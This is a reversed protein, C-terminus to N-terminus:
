VDKLKQLGEVIQKPSIKKKVFEDIFFEKWKSDNEGAYYSAYDRSISIVKRSFEVFDYYNWYFLEDGYIKGEKSVQSRNSIMVTYIKCDQIIEKVNEIIWKRHTTAQRIDDIAIEGNDSEYKKDEFVIVINDKSIWYPDPAASDSPNDCKFGLLKGIHLNLNELDTSSIYDEISKLYNNYTKSHSIKKWSLYQQLYEINWVLNENIEIEDIVIDSVSRSWSASPCIRIFKDLFMSSKEKYISNGTEAFLIESIVSGQYHWFARYGRLESGGDLSQIIQNILTFCKEYQKNWLAYQYDLEVPAAKELEQVGEFEVQKMEGRKEIIEEDATKWNQTQNIFEVFNDIFEKRTISKSNEIGFQIEAQLEPHLYKNKSKLLLWESLDKDGVVCIASFDRPSRTCRGIAQILRTRNRDNFLISANMRSQFFKEQINSAYPIGILFLLRSQDGAFDIGDFRNALVIAAKPSNIFNDKSKEIDSATYFSINPHSESLQSKYNQIQDDSSVLIVTRHTSELLDSQLQMTESSDLGLTPFMFFRRGMGQVDWGKPVPIKYFPSVGTIRELDGGQGLTASMFIRQNASKFGINELSPPIIPRILIENWSFFLQCAHLNNKLILWTYKLEEHTDLYP